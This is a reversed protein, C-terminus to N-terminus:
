RVAKDLQSCIIEFGANIEEVSSSAISIRIGKKHHTKDLFFNEGNTVLVNKKKLEAILLKANIHDPLELYSYYGSKGGICKIDYESLKNFNKKLCKQKEELEKTISDVQKKLINSRIYIELTAQSILSAHFYSYYYSAEIGKEFINLMHSPMVIIGIRMWPLIKSFSKLYIHHQHDSYTYIPDYKSDMSIDGFYDDEVIYVDYKAALAAIAKRQRKNYSTGM